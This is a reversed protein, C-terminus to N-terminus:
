ANAASGGDVDREFALLFQKPVAAGVLDEAGRLAVEEQVYSGISYVSFGWRTRMAAGTLVMKVPKGDVHNNITAPYRTRGLTVGPDAAHTTMCLGLLIAALLGDRYM